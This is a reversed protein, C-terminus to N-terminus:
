DLNTHKLEPVSELIRTLATITGDVMDVMM